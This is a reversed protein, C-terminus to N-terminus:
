RNKETANMLVSSISSESNNNNGKNQQQQRARTDKKSTAARTTRKDRDLDDQAPDIHLDVTPDDMEGMYLQQDHDHEHRNQRQLELLIQLNRRDMEEDQIDLDEQHDSDEHMALSVINGWQGTENYLKYSEPRPVLYRCSYKKQCIIHRCQDGPSRLSASRICSTYRVAVVM